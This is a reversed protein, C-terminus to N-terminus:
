YSDRQLNNCHICHPLFVCFAGFFLLFGFTQRVELPIPEVVDHRILEFNPKGILHAINSKDGTFFNDLCIVTDGRAVLFDCLHSGVFGAGGTVLVRNTSSTRPKARVKTGLDSAKPVGSGASAGAGAGAGAGAESSTRAKKSSPEVM